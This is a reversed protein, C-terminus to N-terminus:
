PKKGAEPRTFVLYYNEKFGEIKVEKAPAFGTAEIESSIVKKGARVHGLIWERSVGPIREFDVVVLKGGPKLAKFISTVTATPYEFHHYTDCTFALDITNAKLGVSDEECRVVEVQKLGKEAVRKKLGKVFGESIDVAFVKGETGVAKAFPELFLGTGAGIDAIAMGPKLDLNSIIADRQHFVERSEVEFRGIWQKIDLKPDLFKSNIGPKVSQRPEGGPKQAEDALSISLWGAGIAALFSIPLSLPARNSQPTKM